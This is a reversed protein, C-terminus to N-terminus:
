TRRAAGALVDRHRQRKRSRALRHQTLARSLGLGPTAWRSWLARSRQPCSPQARTASGAPAERPRADRCRRATSRRSSPGPAVVSSIPADEFVHAKLLSVMGTVHEYFVIGGTLDAFPGVARSPPTFHQMHNPRTGESEQDATPVAPARRTRVFILEAGLTEGPAPFATLTQALLSGNRRGGAFLYAAHLRRDCHDWPFQNCKVRSTWEQSL